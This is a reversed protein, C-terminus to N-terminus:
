TKKYTMVLTPISRRIPVWPATQSMFSREVMLKKECPRKLALVALGAGARNEIIIKQGLNESLKNSITRAIIDAGGGAPFPVVLKIPKGAPWDSAQAFSSACLYFALSLIRISKM